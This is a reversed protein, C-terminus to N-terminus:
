SHFHSLLNQPLTHTVRGFLGAEVGDVEGCWVALDDRVDSIEKGLGRGRLGAAEPLFPLWLWDGGRWGEDDDAFRARAFRREEVEDVMKKAGLKAQRIVDLWDHCFCPLFVAAGEGDRLPHKAAVRERKEGDLLPRLQHVKERPVRVIMPEIM